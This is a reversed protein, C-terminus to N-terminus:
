LMAGVRGTGTMRCCGFSGIRTSGKIRHPNVGDHAFSMDPAGLIILALDSVAAVNGANRSSIFNRLTQVDCAPRGRRTRTAQTVSARPRITRARLGGSSFAGQSSFGTGHACRLGNYDAMHLTHSALESVQRTVIIV